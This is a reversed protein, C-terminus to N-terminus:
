GKRMDRLAEYLQREEPSLCQPIEIRVRILLDGHKHDRYGPLGKGRLRLVEDPQTAPPINVKVRGELTPVNISCGLVADAVAITEVRWLDPGRREFRSDPKSHIVIYLDGSEGGAEQSNGSM